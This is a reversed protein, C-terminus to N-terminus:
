LPMKMIMTLYHEYTVTIWGDRDRDETSFAATLTQLVVCCQIFDDFSVSGCGRRDFKRILVDVFRDSLRYGFSILATSLEKKDIAGSNDTDYSRFAQQWDTIYKWLGAFEDFTIMGNGDRDFMGVMLRVTEPNFETWQGNKLASSLEDQSISGSRDTDVRQFYQWLADRSIPPQGRQQYAM